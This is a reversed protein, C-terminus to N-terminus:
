TRVETERDMEVTAVIRHFFDATSHVEKEGVRSVEYSNQVKNKSMM